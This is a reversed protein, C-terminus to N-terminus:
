ILPPVKSRPDSCHHQCLSLWWDQRWIQRGSSHWLQWPQYHCEPGPFSCNNVIRVSLVCVTAVIQCGLSYWVPPLFTVTCCAWGITTTLLSLTGIGTTCGVPCPLQCAPLLQAWASPFCWTVTWWRWPCLTTNKMTVAMTCYSVMPSGHLLAAAVYHPNSYYYVSMFCVYFKM